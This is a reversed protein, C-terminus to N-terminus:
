CRSRTTTSTAAFLAALETSEVASRIARMQAVSPPEIHPIRLHPVDLLGGFPSRTPPEPNAAELEDWIGDWIFADDEEIM